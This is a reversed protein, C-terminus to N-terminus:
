NLKLRLKEVNPKWILLIENLAWFSADKLSDWKYVLTYENYIDYIYWNTYWDLISGFTRLNRWKREINYIRWIPWFLTRQLFLSKRWSGNGFFIALLGDHVMMRKPSRNRAWSSWPMNRGLEVWQSAKRLLYRSSGDWELVFLAMELNSLSSIRM